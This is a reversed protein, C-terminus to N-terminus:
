FILIKGQNKNFYEIKDKFFYWAIAIQIILVTIFFLLLLFIKFEFKSILFKLYNNSLYKYPEYVFFDFYIICLDILWFLWTSFNALIQDFYTPLQSISWTNQSNNTINNYFQTEPCVLKYFEKTSRSTSFNNFTFKEM